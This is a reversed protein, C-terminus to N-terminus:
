QWLVALTEERGVRGQQEGLGLQLIRLKRQTAKRSLLTNVVSSYAYPQDKGLLTTCGQPLGGPLNRGKSTHLVRSSLAVAAKIVHHSYGSVDLDKRQIGSAPETM